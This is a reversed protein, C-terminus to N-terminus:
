NRPKITRIYKMAKHTHADCLKVTSEIVHLDDYGPLFGKGPNGLNIFKNHIVKCGCPYWVQDDPAQRDNGEQTNTDKPHQQPRRLVWRKFVDIINSRSSGSSLSESNISNDSM